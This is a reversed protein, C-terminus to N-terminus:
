CLDKRKEGTKKEKEGGKKGTKKGERIEKWETEKQIREEGEKRRTRETLSERKKGEESDGEVLAKRKKGRKNEAKEEDKGANEKAKM